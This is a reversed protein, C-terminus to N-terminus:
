VCIVGAGTTEGWMISLASRGNRTGLVPLPAGVWRLGPAGIGHIPPPDLKGSSRQRGRMVADHNRDKSRGCVLNHRSEVAGSLPEGRITMGVADDHEFGNLILGPSISGLVPRHFFHTVRSSEFLGMCPGE